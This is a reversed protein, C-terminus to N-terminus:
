RSVPQCSRSTRKAGAAAVDVLVDLIEVRLEHDALEVLARAYRPLEVTSVELINRRLADTIATIGADTMGNVRSLERRVRREEKESYDRDAYAIAGLLGTISTVVQVTEEDAGSLHARVAHTLAEAGKPLPASRATSLWRGFM